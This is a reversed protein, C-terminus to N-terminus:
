FDQKFVKKASTERCFSHTNYNHFFPRVRANMKKSLYALIFIVLLFNM